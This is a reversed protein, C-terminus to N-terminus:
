SEADTLTAATKTLREIDARVASLNMTVGALLQGVSDHLERAIRRREDDQLQLLRASFLIVVQSRFYTVITIM